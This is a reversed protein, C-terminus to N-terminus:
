RVTIKLAEDGVKIIYVGQSLAFRSEATRLVCRGDMGYVQVEGVGAPLLVEGGRVLLRDALANGVATAGGM